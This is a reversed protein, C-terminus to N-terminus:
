TPGHAAASRPKSGGQTSPSGAPQARVDGRADDVIRLLGEVVLRRAVVVQSSEDLEVLDGVRVVRERRLQDLAPAATAPLRLRRDPLHLRIFGDGLVEVRSGDDDPLVVVTELDLDGARLFSALRGSEDRRPRRRRRERAAVDSPDAEVLLKQAEDFALALQDALGVDADRQWGIPLPEDLRNGRTALVRQVVARYTITLIGITLHLSMQDQTAAHHRTGAPMYLGDGPHLEIQGLGEVSWSKSGHLQRVIVDHGDVHPALGTAGPPTLYANVQVPHGMDSELEAAFASVAPWTRHLSQLVLTDGSALCAAVKTPDIVDPVTRGGLRLTTTYESGDVPTGARVLRVEPRRAASNLLADVGNLDLVDTFRDGSRLHLPARGWHLERFREVEGVCRELM